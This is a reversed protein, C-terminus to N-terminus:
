ICRSFFIVNLLLPLVCCYLSFIPSLMSSSDDRFTPDVVKEAERGEIAPIADGLDDEMDMDVEQIRNEKLDDGHFLSKADLQLYLSSAEEWQGAMKEIDDLTFGHVNRAACGVPDKYAAELIYVEYGSRKATAWFQAFDAVRLNRDDVIIFTFVGEEVTKKFAKLMSSRYAEEMEPEYCYEMVKKMVPKKNRGSNSSKSADNDEVKEVETMFYDDLSHIRPANGGNEVELDRLMKALYSKGSGPLGRLIIVFHDPRSTRHPHRFLHSADIFKPKVPPPPPPPPKMSFPQPSDPLYHKSHPQHPHPTNFHPLPPPPPQSQPSHFYPHPPPPPQQQQEPPPPPPPPPSTTLPVPFLSPPPRSLYPPESPLPPPPSSPLPQPQPQPPRLFRSPDMNSPAHHHHHHHHYGNTTPRDNYHYPADAAADRHSYGGGQPDYPYQHHHHPPPNSLAVGHDRILKLRRVDEEEEEWEDTRPRKLCNNNPNPSYYSSSSPPPHSDWNPNPASPPPYGYPHPHYHPPRIVPQPPHPYYSPPPPCFPFHSFSCTPCLNLNGQYQYQIAPRLHHNHNHNHHHDM